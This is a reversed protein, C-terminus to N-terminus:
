YILYFNTRFKLASKKLTNLTVGMDNVDMNWIWVSASLFDLHIQVYLNENESDNLFLNTEILNFQVCM